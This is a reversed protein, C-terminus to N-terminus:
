PSFPSSHKRDYVMNFRHLRAKHHPKFTLLAVTQEEIAVELVTPFFSLTSPYKRVHHLLDILELLHGLLGQLKFDHQPRAPALRAGESAYVARFMGSSPPDAFPLGRTRRSHTWMGALEPVILGRPEIAELLMGM